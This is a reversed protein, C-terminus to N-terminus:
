AYALDEHNKTKKVSKINQKNTLFQNNEVRRLFLRAKAPHNGLEKLVIDRTLKIYDLVKELKTIKQNMLKKRALQNNEYYNEVFIAAYENNLSPGKPYIYQGTPHTKTLRDSIEKDTKALSKGATVIAQYENAPILNQAQLRHLGEHALLALSPNALTIQDDAASYRGTYSQNTTTIIWDNIVNLQDKGIGFKAAATQLHEINESDLKLKDHHAFCYVPQEAFKELGGNILWAESTVPHGYQDKTKVKTKEYSLGLNKLIKPLRQEYFQYTKYVPSLHRYASFNYANIPVPYSKGIQPVLIDKKNVTVNDKSHKDIYYRIKGNNKAVVMFRSNDRNFAEGYFKVAFNEVKDGWSDVSNCAIASKIFDVKEKYNNFTINFNEKILSDYLTVFAEYNKDFLKSFIEGYLYGEKGAVKIPLVNYMSVQAQAIKYHEASKEYVIYGSHECDEHQEGIKDLYNIKNFRNIEKQHESLVKKYNKDTIPIETILRRKFQAVQAMNGTHFMITKKGNQLAHIISQQVMMSNINKPNALIKASSSKTVLTESSVDSQLNGILVRDTNPYDEFRM